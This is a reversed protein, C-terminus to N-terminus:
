WHAIVPLRSVNAILGYVIQEKRKRRKERAEADAVVDGDSKEVSYGELKGSEEENEKVVIARRERELLAVQALVFVGWARISWLAAKGGTEHSIFRPALVPAFPASFFSMWELPYFILM